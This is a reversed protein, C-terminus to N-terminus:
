AASAARGVCFTSFARATRFFGRGRQGDNRRRARDPKVIAAPKGGSASVRYIAEGRRPAFLIQGGAGWTGAYSLSDQIDWVDCIPVPIRGSLDARWLKGAAFFGLSRGDPSWFLSTVNETGPM